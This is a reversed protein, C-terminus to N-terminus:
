REVRYVLWVYGNEFSENKMLKMKLEREFKAFIPIREKAIVPAVLLSIENVLGLELLVSILTSGTDTLVTKIGYKENLMELAKPIDVHDEGAVIYDYKRQKLYILYDQPTRESALIVVDRCGEFRRYVHLTGKLSGRSDPIVWLPVDGKNGPKRFDSNEEEPIKGGMFDEIGKKITNSGILHADPKFSGAIRYHLGMDVEFGRLSGDLSVTNHVIIKPIM